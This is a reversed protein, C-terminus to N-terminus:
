DELIIVGDSENNLMASVNDDVEEYIQIDGVIDGSSDVEAVFADYGDLESFKIKKVNPNNSTKKIFDKMDGIVVKTDKKKRIYKIIKITLKTAVFIVLGGLIALVIAGIIVAPDM